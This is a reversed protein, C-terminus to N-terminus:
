LRLLLFPSAGQLSWSLTKSWHALGILQPDSSWSPVAPVLTQVRARSGSETSLGDEDRNLQAVKPTNILM